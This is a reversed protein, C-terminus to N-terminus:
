ADNGGRVANFESIAYDTDCAVIERIRTASIGYVRGVERPSFEPLLLLITNQRREWYDEKLASVDVGLDSATEGISDGLGLRDAMQRGSQGAALGERLATARAECLRARARLRNQKTCTADHDNDNDHPTEHYVDKVRAMLAGCECRTVVDSYRVRNPHAPNVWKTTRNGALPTKWSGLLYMMRDSVHQHTYPTDELAKSLPFTAAREGLGDIYDRLALMVRAPHYSSGTTNLLYHHADDPSPLDLSTEPTATAAM